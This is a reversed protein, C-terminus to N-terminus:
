IRAMASCLKTNTKRRISKFRSRRQSDSSEVKRLYVDSTAKTLAEKHIESLSIKKYITKTM